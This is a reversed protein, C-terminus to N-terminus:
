IASRNLASSIKRFIARKKDLQLRAYKSYCASDWRGWGKIDDDSALGPFRNLTSAIGARFSHCSIAEKSYDIIGSLISRLLSNLLTPTLNRGGALRFVPGGAVALGAELQLERHRSLVEMPCCGHGPFPFVALFETKGSKPLKITIIASNDARFKIDDWTLTATPDFSSDRSALLEGVRASTFFAVVCCAWIAQKDTDPWDTGALQHSILKIM